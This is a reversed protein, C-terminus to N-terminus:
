EYLIDELELYSNIKFKPTLDKPLEKPGWIALACDIGANNAAYVDLKDDGVYITEQKSASFYKISKEIGEPDPKGNKVDDFGIIYDFLGEFGICKLAYETLDHRKNTVIGLKYGDEKLRILVEKSHPYAFTHTPYLEKSVRMFEQFMFEIDMEPFEDKLTDRIPPGSFYYMKEVPTRVGHRYKDYLINLSEIIMPNSDLVTGDMDFLVVKYRKNKM